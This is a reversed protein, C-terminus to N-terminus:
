RLSDEAIGENQWEVINFFFLTIGWFTLEMLFYSYFIVM